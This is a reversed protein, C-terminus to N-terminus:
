QFCLWPFCLRQSCFAASFLAVSFLAASFLAAGFVLGCFVLRGLIFSCGAGALVLCGLGPSRLIFGCLGLGRCGTCVLVLRGFVLCSCCARSLVLCGRVLCRSRFLSSRGSLGALGSCSTLLRSRMRGGCSVRPGRRPLRCCGPSFSRRPRLRSGMRDCCSMRLRSWTWCFFLGFRFSLRTLLSNVSPQTYGNPVTRTRQKLSADNRRERYRAVRM